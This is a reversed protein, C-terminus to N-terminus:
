PGRGRGRYRDALRRLRGVIPVGATREARRRCRDRDRAAESQDEVRAPYPFFGSPRAGGAAAGGFPESRCPSKTAERVAKAAPDPNALVFRAFAWALTAKGIGERGGILWAHALRGERYASLMEAEAREHGILSYVHRPHPAGPLADAEPLDDAEGKKTRPQNMPPEGRAGGCSRAAGRGGVLHRRRGRRRKGRRRRRCLARARRRRHRPLRPAPDAHFALGESEFRDAPAGGPRREAARKLGVEPSLDLILTLDPRNPGVTLRELAAIFEPPLSGAAGQYARTSDAFRDCVVWAGRALAPLITKELHDIRAAAFLLAQGGPSFGAAFGSLIAERLAEAGPSGGPERTRVVELGLAALRAELRAAQVSKGVGEGGELTIFRGKALRTMQRARHSATEAEIRM